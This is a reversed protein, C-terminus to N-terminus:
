APAAAAAPAPRRRADESGAGDTTSSSIRKLALNVHERPMIMEFAEECMDEITEDVKMCFASIISRPVGPKYAVGNLDQLQKEDGYVGDSLLRYFMENMKVIMTDAFDAHFNSQKEVYASPKDLAQAYLKDRARKQERGLTNLADPEFITDRILKKSLDARTVEGATSGFISM